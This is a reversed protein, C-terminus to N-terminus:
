QDPVKAVFKRGADAFKQRTAGDGFACDGIREEVEVQANEETQEVLKLAQANDPADGALVDAATILQSEPDTAVAAKHGDFRKAKSKRGRRMEPDHVSVVRDHSVEQKITAGEPKREIDQLLLQSLLSAAETPQKYEASEPAYNTLAQRAIELLGDADAVIGTLFRQRAKQDEWDVSAEGKISAATFYRSLNNAAAWEEPKSDNLSALVRILRVIGDALLNYTDRVAGRGLINSTDLAVKIKRNKMYPKVLM